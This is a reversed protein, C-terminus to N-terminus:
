EILYGQALKDLAIDIERDRAEEKTQVEDM